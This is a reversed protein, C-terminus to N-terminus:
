EVTFKDIAFYGPTNMGFQGIDTSDLTFYIGSVEGLSSLDVYKWTKLIGAEPNEETCNALYVRVEKEKEGNKVGHIILTFKDNNGFKKAYDDGNLMSYYPYAANTVYVSKPRFTANDNRFIRCSRYDFSPVGLESSNWNAILYPTGKGDLGGGTIVEFQHQWMPNYYANDTIDAAVFGQSTNWETWEHSFTFDGIVLNGPKDWGSWIHDSNFSIASLSLTNDKEPENNDSCSTLTGFALIAAGFFLSNFLKM